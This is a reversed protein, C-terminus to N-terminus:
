SSEQRRAAGAGQRGTMLPRFKYGYVIVGDASDERIRRTVMEVRLGIALEAAVVDTLQAAILPGEDLRVLAVPYPAFEEHGAPAHHVVSYSFVEGGGCFRHARMETGGCETCVDRPPFMRHDCAVCQTGTLRYRQAQQRWTQPASV